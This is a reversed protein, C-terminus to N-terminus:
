LQDGNTNKLKRLTLVPCVISLLKAPIDADKTKRSAYDYYTVKGSVECDGCEKTPRIEFTASKSENPKLLAISKEPVKFLFTDPVFLRIRIDSIPESTPNSVKIKHFITPGKYGVASTIMINSEHKLPATERVPEPEDPQQPKPPESPQAEAKPKLPTVPPKPEVPPQPKAYGSKGDKGRRSIGIGAILLVALVAAGILYLLSISPSSAPTPATTPTVVPIREATSLPTQTSTLNSTPARESVFQEASFSVTPESSTYKRVRYDDYYAKRYAFVGFYGSVDIGSSITTSYSKLFNM